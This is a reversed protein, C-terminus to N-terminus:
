TALTAPWCGLPDIIAQATSAGLAEVKVEGAMAVRFSIGSPSM